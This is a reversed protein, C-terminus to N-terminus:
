IVDDQNIEQEDRNSAPESPKQVGIQALTLRTLDTLSLFGVIILLYTVLLGGRSRSHIDTMHRM